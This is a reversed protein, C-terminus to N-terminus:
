TDSSRRWFGRVLRQGDREGPSGECQSSSGGTPSAPKSGLRPPIPGTGQSHGRDRRRHTDEVLGLAVSHSAPRGVLPEPPRLCEAYKPNGPANHAPLAWNRCSIYTLCGFVWGRPRDQHIRRHLVADHSPASKDIGHEPHSHGHKPSHQPVREILSRRPLQVRHYRLKLILWGSSLTGETLGAPRVNCAPLFCIAM